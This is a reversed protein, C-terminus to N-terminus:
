YKINHKNNTKLLFLIEDIITASITENKNYVENGNIFLATYNNSLQLSDTDTLISLLKNLDKYNWKM